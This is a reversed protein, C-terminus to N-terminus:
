SRAGGITLPGRRRHVTVYAMGDAGATVSRSSGKPVHVVAPAAVASAAGDVAVDGGGGVVVLVVDVERNTHEGVAGGAALRVVNVNLDDPDDLTWVVGGGGDATPTVATLVAAVDVVQPCRDFTVPKGRQIRV